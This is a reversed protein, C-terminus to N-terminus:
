PTKLPFFVAVGLMLELGAVDVVVEISEVDL